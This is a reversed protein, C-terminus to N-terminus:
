LGINQVEEISHVVYYEGGEDKVRKEFEKQELSQKAGPRKVELGVFNGGKIVIIDPLGRM